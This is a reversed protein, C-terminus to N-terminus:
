EEPKPQHQHQQSRDFYKQVALKAAQEVHSRLEGERLENKGGKRIVSSVYPDVGLRHACYAIYAERKTRVEVDCMSCRPAPPRSVRATMTGRRETRLEVVPGMPGRNM